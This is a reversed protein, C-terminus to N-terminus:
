ETARPPHRTARYVLLFPTLIFEPGKTIKNSSKGRWAGGFLLWLSKNTFM